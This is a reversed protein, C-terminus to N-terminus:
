KKKDFSKTIAKVYQKAAVGVSEPESIKSTVVAVLQDEGKNDLDYIVTELVYIATTQTTYTPDVYSGTSAVHNGYNSYSMPHYYYGYFGGYYRPYYGAYNAGAYYGGEVTTKTLEQVDKLVTLVVGNYGQGKLMDIIAEQKGESVKEDPNLKPFEIFSATAKIGREKLQDVIENEFSMRSSLNETRVIVLMNNDKVSSANDAKWSNLVEVSSCSNFLLVLTLTCVLYFSKKM